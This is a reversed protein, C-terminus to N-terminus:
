QGRCLLCPVKEGPQVEEWDQTGLYEVVISGNTADVAPALYSATRQRLINVLCVSDYYLLASPLSIDAPAPFILRVSHIM